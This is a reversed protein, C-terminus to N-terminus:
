RRGFRAVAGLLVLLAVAIIGIGVIGWLTSTTVTIRFDANSSEGKANARFSAVYDGAITKDSPTVAVQVEKKENPAVSPITKPNFELKWNTPASGSVEVEELPATGDNTVVLTYDATKGATAEGSLRGDKATLSLRGQGSVQLTVRQEATAGEAAVKVLVPFTGAKVDRPPTVKVKIDKSQGAEIPISSIENSGYGETFSTGFNAPAQASMAVTLDKGSDNSVSLTYEYSSRPTGMLSPLRSKITLKAPTETGITLTVPLSIAQSGGKASITLTQSGPKADKPVDVRLQLSSSENIGPMAAAVPQGGGLIDAKWGEPAGQVSLALTEPVLGSNQLKFRINAVEGPRVTQSPYDTLLWLGKVPPPPPPPPPDAAFAPTAIILALLVILRRM